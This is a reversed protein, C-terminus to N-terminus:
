RCMVIRPVVTGLAENSTSMVVSVVSSERRSPAIWVWAMSVARKGLALKTSVCGIASPEIGASPSFISTFAM